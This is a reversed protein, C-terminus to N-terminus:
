RFLGDEGYVSEMALEREAQAFLSEMSPVLDVGSDYTNGYDRAKEEEAEKAKMSREGMKQQERDFRLPLYDSENIEDYEFRVLDGFKEHIKKNLSELNLKYDTVFGDHLLLLVDSQKEKAFEVAIDLVHRELSQYIYALLKGTNLRQECTFQHGEYLELKRGSLQFFRKAANALVKREELLKQVFGNEIFNDYNEQDTPWLKYKGPQGRAPKGFIERFASEDVRNVSSLKRAGFGLATIAAKITSLQASGKHIAAHDGYVAKTLEERFYKKDTIYLRTAALTEGNDCHEKLTSYLLAFAAVNLDYQHGRKIATYRIRKHCSQLNAGKGYLRPSKESTEFLQPLYYYGNRKLYKEDHELALEVFLDAQLLELDSWIRKKTEYYDKVQRKTAKNYLSQETGYKGLLEENAQKRKENLVRQKRLADVCIPTKVIRCNPDNQNLIMKQNVLLRTQHAKKTWSLINNETLLEMFISKYKPNIIATTLEGAINSGKNLVLLLPCRQSLLRWTYQKKNNITVRGTQETIQNWAIVIGGNITQKDWYHGIVVDLVSQLYRSVMRDEQYKKLQLDALGSASLAPLKARLSQILKEKNM